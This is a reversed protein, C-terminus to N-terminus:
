AWATKNTHYNNRTLSRNSQQNQQSEIQIVGQYYSFM